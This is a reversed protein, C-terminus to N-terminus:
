EQQPKFILAKINRQHAQHGTKNYLNWSICDLFIHHTTHKKKVDIQAVLSRLEIM